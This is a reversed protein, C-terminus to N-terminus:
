ELPNLHRFLDKFAPGEGAQFLQFIQYPRLLDIRLEEPRIFNPAYRKIPPFRRWM